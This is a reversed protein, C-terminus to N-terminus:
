MFYFILLVLEEIDRHSLLRIGLKHLAIPWAAVHCCPRQGFSYFDFHGPYNIAWHGIGLLCISLAGLHVFPKHGM